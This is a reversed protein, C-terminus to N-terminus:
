LTVPGRIGTNSTYEATLVVFWLVLRDVRSKVHVFKILRIIHVIEKTWAM